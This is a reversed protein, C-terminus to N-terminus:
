RGQATGLVAEGPPPLVLEDSALAGVRAEEGVYGLGRFAALLDDAKAALPADRRLRTLREYEARFAVLADRANRDGFDTSWDADSEQPHRALDIWRLDERPEAPDEPVLARERLLTISHFRFSEIVRADEREGTPNLILRGLAPGDPSPSLLPARGLEGATLALVTPAVQALSAPGPRREGRALTGPLRLILPIRVVEDYLTRRHGLAGHELFEEGHDAVVVVLTNGAFGRRELDSMVRGIEADTWALEGAQLAFLHELDRPSVQPSAIRRAFDRGDLAGRYDADFAENFPPPPVYDYHPDFYHAFLFFPRGDDAAAALEALVLETVSRSSSDRHSAAELAFEAAANDQLLAQRQDRPLSDDLAHVRAQAAAAQEVAARLEPGYGAQYVEFGRGLGFRPDLYPGSYVGATRYGADRLTEALTPISDSLRQGDQEVGHVLEPLGTFLTVHSPLTWSTTAVADEVLVGEDALRDLNPSPSREPAHPLRAGYAGVLDRRVSDLSILLVNPRSDRERACGIAILGLLM